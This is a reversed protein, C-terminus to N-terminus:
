NKITGNKVRREINKKCVQMGYYRTKHRIFPALFRIFRLLSSAENINVRWLDSNYYLGDPRLDRKKYILRFKVNINQERLWMTIWRLIGIDYSDIKFRARTQNLIFNGEADTYGAIFAWSAKVDDRIWLPVEEHKPLLFDFTKNLYCNVNTSYKGKSITIRGYKAFLNKMLNVQVIQTTNCRAIILESSERTQYVNLDGLRFGILYAKEILDGSFDFKRYRMRAGSSSRFLIGLERMRTRVTIPDCNFLKAIKPPSKYEEWYLRQLIDRPIQIKARPM